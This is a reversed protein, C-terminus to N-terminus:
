DTGKETKAEERGIENEKKVEYDDDFAQPSTEKANRFSGEQRSPNEDNPKQPIQRPDVADASRNDRKEMSLM